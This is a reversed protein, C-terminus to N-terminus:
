GQRHRALFGDDAARQAQRVRQAEQAAQQRDRLDSMVQRKRKADEYSELQMKRRRQLEALKTGLTQKQQELSRRVQEGFHLNIAPTGGALERQQLAHSSHQQARLEEMQQVVRAIEHQTQELLHLDREELNQRLRLVAALRFHFAM